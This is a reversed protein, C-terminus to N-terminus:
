RRRARGPGALAVASSGLARHLVAIAADSLYEVGLKRLLVRAQTKLTNESVGLRDVIAARTMGRIAFTLIARERQNLRYTRVTEAIAGDIRTAPGKATGDNSRPSRTAPRNTTADMLDDLRAGRLSAVVDRAFTRALASLTEELRTM